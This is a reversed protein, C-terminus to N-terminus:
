DGEKGAQEWHPRDREELLAKIASLEAQTLILAGKVAGLGYISSDAIPERAAETRGNRKTQM